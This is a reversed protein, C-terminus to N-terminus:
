RDEGIPSPDDDGEARYETFSKRSLLFCQLRAFIIGEGCLFWSFLVAREVM